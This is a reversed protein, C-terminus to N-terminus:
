NCLYYFSNNVALVNCERKAIDGRSFLSHYFQGDRTLLTVLHYNSFLRSLPKCLGIKKLFDQKLFIGNQPRCLLIEKFIRNKLFSIPM